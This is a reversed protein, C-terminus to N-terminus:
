DSGRRRRNRQFSHRRAEDYAEEDFDPERVIRYKGGLALKIEQQHVVGRDDVWAKAAPSEVVHCPIKGRDTELLERGTVSVVIPMFRPGIGAILSLPNFVQMRWTQGDKLDTLQSFPNFSGSLVGGEILPIKFLRWVRNGYLFGELKFSFEAPFREGHLEVNADVNDLRVTFEDLLGSSAYVSKVEIRFPAVQAVDLPFTEVWVTDMRTVSNADALFTTFISGVRDGSSDLIAQQSRQGEEQMWETMTVTPPNDARLYPLVDHAFLWGMTLLWVPIILIGTTKTFM